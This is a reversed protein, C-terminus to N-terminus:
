HGPVGTLSLLFFLKLNFSIGKLIKIFHSCSNRHSTVINTEKVLSEPVGTLM